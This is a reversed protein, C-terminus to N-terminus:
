WIARKPYELPRYFDSSSRRELMAVAGAVVNALDDHGGPGHDVSDKGSRGVRRELGTLQLVLRNNDLLEINRSNLTPLLDVYMESKSKEAPEYYVGLKRFAEVPWEGAYRDGFVQSCRYQRLLGVLEATAAEPSFPPRIERVADLVAVKGEKHAIALAFSDGSGGSPDAFGVYANRNEPPREHVGPTICARVVDLNVFGELDSRFEAYYEARATAEDRDLARAVVKPDLSPNFEMSTGRAVLIGPDGNPGYHRRFLEWLEGKRAYPSSIIIVPGGTTSLAPRLAGLIETDPNTSNESHWFAAEDAIVALGTFGRLRRFSASRVEISAGNTLELTDATRNAIMRALLPTSEMIGACYDLCIRAQKQDPAVCIVLGTEGPALRHKCLAAIYVALAAIASSKGGRRGVVCVLEDVRTDPPRERGTLKRFTELEDAKLPEGMAALLIARWASWSDGALINGLLNPDTLTKRLTTQPIM